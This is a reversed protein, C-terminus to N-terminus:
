YNRRPIGNDSMFKEVTTKASQFEYIGGCTRLSKIAQIFEGQLAFGKWEYRRVIRYVFSCVGIKILSMVKM